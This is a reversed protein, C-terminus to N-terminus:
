KEKEAKEKEEMEKYYEELKGMIFEKLMAAPNTNKSACYAKFAEADNRRLRCSVTLINARDWERAFKKQKESVAM